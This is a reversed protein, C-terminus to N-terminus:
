GQRECMFGLLSPYLEEASARGHLYFRDLVDRDMEFREVRMSTPRIVFLKGEARLQEMREVQENYRDIRALLLDYLKPYRKKYITSLIHKYRGYDTGSEGQPRTLVVVVKDCGKEFARDFPISDGVSGDLYHGGDLEVPRCLIPVSCSAKNIAFLRAEDKKESLYEARGEECSVAVFETECEASFFADLDFPYQVHAFETLMRDLNIFRGSSFFSKMGIYEYKKEPLIVNKTRGKQRATFNLANGAGASVGVIYPFYLGNELFVDLVGATFIGRKAGGELVLGIKM